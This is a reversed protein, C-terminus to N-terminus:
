VLQSYTSYLLVYKSDAYKALSQWLNVQKAAYAAKGREGATMAIDCFKQWEVSKHIFFGTTWVMEHQTLNM